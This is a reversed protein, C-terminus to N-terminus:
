DFSPDRAPLEEFDSEVGGSETASLVKIRKGLFHYGYLGILLAGNGTRNYGVNRDHSTTVNANALNWAGLAKADGSIDVSANAASSIMVIFKEAMTVRAALISDEPWKDRHQDIYTRVQLLNKIFVDTCNVADFVTGGAEGFNLTISANANVVGETPATGSAKLETSFCGVSRFNTLEQHPTQALDLKLDPFIELLSAQRKFAGHELAGIDGPVIADGPPWVPFDGLQNRVNAVYDKEISV